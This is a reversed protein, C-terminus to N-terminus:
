LISGGVMKSSVIESHRRLTTLKLTEGSFIIEGYLKLGLALMEAALTPTDNM